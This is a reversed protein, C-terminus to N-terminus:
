VRYERCKAQAAGSLKLGSYLYGYGAGRPLPDNPDTKGIDLQGNHNVDESGDRFGDGDSAKRCPSTTTPFDLGPQLLNTDTDPGINSLRIEERKRGYIGDGDMDPNCPDTENLGSLM